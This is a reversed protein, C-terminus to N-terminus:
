FDFASIMMDWVERNDVPHYGAILIAAVFLAFGAKAPQTPTPRSQANQLHLKLQRRGGSSLPRM